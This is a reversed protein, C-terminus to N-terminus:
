KGDACGRLAKFYMFCLEQMDQERLKKDMCTLIRRLLMQGEEPEMGSATKEYFELIKIVLFDEPYGRANTHDERLFGCGTKRLWINMQEVSLFPSGLIILHRILNKRSFQGEAKQMRILESGFSASDQPNLKEEKGGRALNVYGLANEFYLARFSKQLDRERIGYRLLMSPHIKQLFEMKLEDLLVVAEAREKEKAFYSQDMYYRFFYEKEKEDLGLARAFGAAEEFNGPFHTGSRWYRIKTTQSYKLPATHYLEQYLREDTKARTLICKGEAELKQKYRDYKDLLWEKEPRVHVKNERVNAIIKLIERELEQDKM